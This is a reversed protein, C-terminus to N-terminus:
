STAARDTSPKWSSSGARSRTAAGVPATFPCGPRPRPSSPGAPRASTCAPTLTAGSPPVFYLDWCDAGKFSVHVGEGTRGAGFTGDAMTLTFQQGGGICDGPESNFYLLTKYPDDNRITGRGQGFAIPAGVANSLSLTLTEDGEEVTDGLVPVTVVVATEGVPFSATGSVATYDSGATATGDATAYDM